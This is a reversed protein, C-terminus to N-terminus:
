ARLGAVNDDRLIGLDGFAARITDAVYSPALHAYHKETMRTDSHGLQTAIVAMPVGQMALRSAHTHRLAHFNARPELSAAVSAMNMRKTQDSPKWAEGSSKKFILEAGAKGSTGRSFFLQGEDTLVVHRAKGSKSPAIYLTGADPDFADATLATIEGYRAGTLLASVVLARFDDPCAHVLRTSEKDTLYRIRPAEANKFPKIRGWAEASAVRGNHYAYNLVAKLHALIRNTTARRQRRAEQSENARHRQPDGPRTRIRAPQDAVRDRWDKVQQSTLKSLKVEGLVPLVHNDMVSRINSVDKGGRRTYDLLYDELADEVTFPGAQGVERADDRVLDAFWERAAQEAEEYTLVDEGAVDPDDDARGLSSFRRGFQKSYHRAIWTGERAGKRYGLAWGKKKSLARWHPERRRQLRSRASRTDLNADKRVRPM